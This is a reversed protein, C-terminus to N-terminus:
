GSSRNHNSGGSLGIEEGFVHLFFYDGEEMATLDTFLKANSLGSHGTLVTHTSEGGIPLSTGQLHGVGKELITESTGHYNPLSVEIAPIEIVGMVGDDTMNLLDYYEGAEEDM